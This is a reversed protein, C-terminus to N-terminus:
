KKEKDNFYNKVNKYTDSIKQGLSQCGTWAKEVFGTKGIGEKFIGTVGKQIREAHGELYSVSSTLKSSISKTMAKKYAVDVGKNGVFNLGTSVVGMIISETKSGTKEYTKKADQYGSGVSRLTDGIKEAVKEVKSLVAARAAVRSGNVVSSAGGPIGPIATALGDAVLGGVAIGVDISDAKARYADYLTWGVNGAGIIVNAVDWPTEVAHGTPDKYRIPNNHVYAFRNWGQTSLEGDIVTDPTM